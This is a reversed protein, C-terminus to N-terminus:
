NSFLKELPSFISELLTVEKIIIIGEGVCGKKYSIFNRYSTKIGDQLDVFVLYLQDKCSFEIKYIKGNIKHYNESSSYNIRIKVPMLIKINEIENIPFRMIGKIHKGYKNTKEDLLVTEEVLSIVSKKVIEYKILHCFILLLVIIFIVILVGWRSIWLPIDKLVTGSYSIIQERKRM